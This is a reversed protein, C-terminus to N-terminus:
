DRMYELGMIAHDVAEDEKLKSLLRFIDFLAESKYIHIHITLELKAV